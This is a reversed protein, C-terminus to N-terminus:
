LLGNPSVRSIIPFTSAKAQSYSYYSHPSLFYSIFRFSQSCVTTYQHVRLSQSLYRIHNILHSLLPYNDVFLAPFLVGIQKKPWVTTYISIYTKYTLWVSLTKLIAKFRLQKYRQHMYWCFLGVICKEARKAILKIYVAERLRKRILKPSHTINTHLTNAYVFRQSCHIYQNCNLLYSVTLRTFTEYYTRVSVSFSRDGM